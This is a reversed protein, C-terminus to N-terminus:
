GGINEGQRTDKIWKHKEGTSEFWYGSSILTSLLQGASTEFTIRTDQQKGGKQNIIKRITQHKTTSLCVIHALAFKLLALHIKRSSHQLLKLTFYNCKARSFLMQSFYFGWGFSNFAYVISIPCLSLFMFESQFEKIRIYSKWFIKKQQM